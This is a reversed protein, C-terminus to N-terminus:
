PTSEKRKPPNDHRRKARDYDAISRLLPAVAEGLLPGDYGSRVLHTAEVAIHRFAMAEVYVERLAVNEDRVRELAALAETLAESSGPDDAMRALRRVAARADDIGPCTHGPPKTPLVDNM